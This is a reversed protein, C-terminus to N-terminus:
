YFLSSQMRSSKEISENRYFLIQQYRRETKLATGHNPSMIKLNRSQSTTNVNPSYRNAQQQQNFDERRARKSQENSRNL